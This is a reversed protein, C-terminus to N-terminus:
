WSQILWKDKLEEIIDAYGEIVLEEFLKIGDEYSLDKLEEM